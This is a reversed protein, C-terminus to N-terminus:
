VPAYAMRGGRMTATLCQRRSKERACAIGIHIWTPELILQDFVLGSERLINFAEEITMGVPVFDAARAFLHASTRVGGVRSNVAASRYGSNIRMPVGLLERVQELTEALRLMNGAMSPGPDNELGTDTRTLEELSFHATLQTMPYTPPPDIANGSGVSLPMGERTCLRTLAPCWSHGKM